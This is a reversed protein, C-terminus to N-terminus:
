SPLLVDRGRADPGRWGRVRGCDGALDGLEVHDAVCQVFELAAVAFDLLRVFFLEGTEAGLESGGALAHGDGLTRGQRETGCRGGSGGYAMRLGCIGGHALLGEADGFGEALGRGEGDVVHAARVGRRPVGVRVVRALHLLALAFAAHGHGVAADGHRVAADGHRVAADGHRVATDGHRVAADGHRVAAHGHGVTLALHALALSLALPLTLSLPLALPLAFTLPDVSLAHHVALPLAVTDLPFTLARATALALPLVALADLRTRRGNGRAHGHANEGCKKLTSRRVPRCASYVGDRGLRAGGAGGMGRARGQHAKEREQRWM